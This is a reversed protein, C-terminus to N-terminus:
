SADDSIDWCSVRKMVFRRPLEGRLREAVVDVDQGMMLYKEINYSNNLWAAVKLNRKELDKLQDRVAKVNVDISNVIKEPVRAKTFENFNAQSCCWCSLSGLARVTASRETRKLLALEGFADGPGLTRLVEGDASEVSATGSRVVFFFSAVTGVTVVNESFFTASMFLKALGVVEIHHMGHHPLAREFANVILLVDEARPEDNTARRAVLEEEDVTTAHGNGSESCADSFSPRRLKFRRSLEARVREVATEVDNCRLIYTQLNYSNDLWAAAHKSRKAIDELSEYAERTLTDLNKITDRDCRMRMANLFSSSSCVWCCLEGEASVTATRRCQRLLAMEGFVSGPGLQRIVKGDETKVSATGAKIVFFYEGTTGHQVIPQDAFTAVFFLHAFNRMETEHLGTCPLAWQLIDAIAGCDEELPSDRLRAAEVVDRESCADGSGGGWDDSRLRYRRKVESQLRDVVTELDDCDFRFMLRREMLERNGLWSAVHRSRKELDRLAIRVDVLAADLVRLREEPLRNRLVEHVASASCVWCRLEGLAKVETARRIRGAGEFLAEDGFLEGRALRWLETGHEDSVSAIGGIVVFVFSAFDGIRIVTENVFKAVLFLHSLGRVESPRLGKCARSKELASSIVALDQESAQSFRQRRSILSAEDQFIGEHSVAPM